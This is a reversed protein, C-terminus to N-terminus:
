INFIDKNWFMVTYHPQDSNRHLDDRYSPYQKLITTNNLTIYQMHDSINWLLERDIKISDDNYLIKYQESLLYPGTWLPTFSYFHERTNKVINHICNLLLQNNPKLIILCTQIGLPESVLYEKNVLQIFRFDDVCNYKIDVYIGGNIYIYCFRFLDSKYSYPKLKQFAELVDTDFHTKIFEYSSNNDYLHCTFEPNNSVLKDYNNKMNEPITRIDHYFTVINLPIM